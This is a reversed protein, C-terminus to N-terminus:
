LMQVGKGRVNVNGGTAQKRKRLFWILAGCGLLLVVGGSACGVILMTYDGLIGDDGSDKIVKEERYPIIGRTPGLFNVSHGSGQLASLTITKRLGLVSPGKINRIIANNPSDSFIVSPDSTNTDTLRKVYAQIHEVLSEAIGDAQSTDTGNPFVGLDVLLTNNTGENLGVVAVVDKIGFDFEIDSIVKSVFLLTEEPDEADLDVYGSEGKINKFEIDKILVVSASSINAKAFHEPTALSKTVYVSYTSTNKSEATVVIDVKNYGIKNETGFTHPSVAPSLTALASSKTFTAEIDTKIPIVTSYAMKAGSFEPILAGETISLDSLESNTDAALRKLTITYSQQTKRDSATVQFMIEQTSGPDPLWAGDKKKANGINGVLIAEDDDTEATFSVSTEVYKLTCSYKLTDKKFDFTCDSSDLSSKLTKLNHNDSTQRSTNLFYKQLTKTGSSSNVYLNLIKNMGLPIKYSFSHVGGNNVAEYSQSTEGDFVARVKANKDATYIVMEKERELNDYVAPCTYEKIRSDIPRLACDTLTMHVINADDDSLVVFKFNYNTKNIGNHATITFSADNHGPKLGQATNGITALTDNQSIKFSFFSQEDRVVCTYTSSQEDPNFAPQIGNFIGDAHRLHHVAEDLCGSFDWGGPKKVTADDNKPRIIDIVYKQTIDTYEPVVRIEAQRAVKKCDTTGVDGPYKNPDCEFDINEDQIMEGGTEVVLAGLTDNYTYSKLEFGHWFVSASSVKTAVEIDVENFRETLPDVTCTYKCIRVAPNAEDADCVVNPDFAPEMTCGPSIKLTKLNANKNAEHTIDFFYENISGQAPRTADCDDPCNSLTYATCDINASSADASQDCSGEDAVVNTLELKFSSTEKYVLTFDRETTTQYTGLTKLKLNYDSGTIKFSVTKIDDTINTTKFICKYRQKLPRFNISDECGEVEVSTLALLSRTSKPDLRRQNTALEIEYVTTARENEATVAISMVAPTEYSTTTSFTAAADMTLVNTARWATPCGTITYTTILPSFPPSLNAMDCGKIKFSHLKSNDNARKLNIYVHRTTHHDKATVVIEAQNHGVRLNDFGGTLVTADADSAFAELQVHKVEKPLIFDEYVDNVNDITLNKPIGAGLVEYDDPITITIRELRTDDKENRVITVFYDLSDLDNPARVHIQVQVPEEIPWVGPPITITVSADVHVKTLQFDTETLNEIDFGVECKYGKTLSQVFKPHFDHCKPITLDSLAAADAFDQTVSITYTDEARADVKGFCAGDGGDGSLAACGEEPCGSGAVACNHLDLTCDDETGKNAYTAWAAPLADTNAYVHCKAAVFTCGEIQECETSDGLQKTELNCDAGNAVATNECTGSTKDWSFYQCDKSRDCWARCQDARSNVPRQVEMKCIAEHGGDDLWAVRCGATEDFSTKNFDDAATFGFLERTAVECEDASSIKLYAGRCDEEGTDKAKGQHSYIVKLYMSAPTDTISNSACQGASEKYKGTKLHPDELHIKGQLEFVKTQGQEFGQLIVEVPDDRVAESGLYVGDLYLHTLVEKPTALLLISQTTHPITCSYENQTTSTLNCVTKYKLQVKLNDLSGDSPPSKQIFKFRRTIRGAAFDVNNNPLTQAEYAADLEYKKVSLAGRYYCADNAACGTSDGIATCTDTSDENYAFCGEDLYQRFWLFAQRPWIFSEMEQWYDLVHEEKTLDSILKPQGTTLIEGDWTMHTAKCPGDYAAQVISHNNNDKYNDIAAQFRDGPYSAVLDADMEWETVNIYKNDDTGKTYWTNLRPHKFWDQAAVCPTRVPSQVFDFDLEVVDWDVEVTHLPPEVVTGPAYVRQCGKIGASEPIPVQYGSDALSCDCPKVIGGYEYLNADNKAEFDMCEHQFQSVQKHLADDDIPPNITIKHELFDRFASLDENAGVTGIVPHNFKKSLQKAHFGLALFQMDDGLLEKDPTLTVTYEKLCNPFLSSDCDKQEAVVLIKLETNSDCAIAVKNGGSDFTHDQFRYHRSQVKCDGYIDSTDTENKDCIIQLTPDREYRRDITTLADAYQITSASFIFDAPQTCFQEHVKCTYDYRDPEFPTDFECHTVALSLLRADRNPERTIVIQYIESHCGGQDRRTDEEDCSESRTVFTIVTEGPPGLLAIGPTITISTEFYNPTAFIFMEEVEYPVTCAHTAVHADWNRVMDECLGHLVTVNKILADVSRLREIEVQYTEQRKQDSSVVNVSLLNVGTTMYTWDDHGYAHITENTITQAPENKTINPIVTQVDLYVTNRDGTAASTQQEIPAIRCDYQHIHPHFGKQVCMLFETQKLDANSYEFMGNPGVRCFFDRPLLTPHATEEPLSYPIKNLKEVCTTYECLENGTTEDKVALCAEDTTLQDVARCKAEIERGSNTKAVCRGDANSQCLESLDSVVGPKGEDSMTFPKTTDFFFKSRLDTMCTPVLSDECVKQLFETIRTCEGSVCSDEHRHIFVNECEQHVDTGDVLKIGKCVDHLFAEGCQKWDNIVNYGLPCLTFGPYEGKRYVTAPKLGGHETDCAQEEDLRLIEMDKVQAMHIYRFQHLGSYFTRGDIAVSVSILDEKGCKRNGCTIQEAPPTEIIIVNETTGKHFDTVVYDNLKVILCDYLLEEKKASEETCDQLNHFGEGIIYLLSGGLVSEERPRIERISPGDVYYVQAKKGEAKSWPGSPTNAFEPEFMNGEPHDIKHRAPFPFNIRREPVDNNDLVYDQYFTNGDADRLRMYLKSAAAGGIHLRVTGGSLPLVTPFMFSVELPEGVCVADELETKAIAAGLVQCDDSLLRIKALSQFQGAEIAVDNIPTNKGALVACQQKLCFAHQKWTTTSTHCESKAQAWINLAKSLGIGPQKSSEVFKCVSETTNVTGMVLECAARNDFNEVANCNARDALVSVTAKETCLGQGVAKDWGDVTLAYTRSALASNLHIQGNDTTSCLQGKVESANRPGELVKVLVGKDDKVLQDTCKPDWLDMYYDDFKTTAGVTWRLKKNSSTCSKANTTSDIQDRDETVDRSLIELSAAIIYSFSEHLAGAQSFTQLADMHQTFAHTWEHVSTDYEANKCYNVERTIEDWYAICNDAKGRRGVLKSDLNDYSKRNLLLEFLEYVEKATEMVLKDANEWSTMNPEAEVDEDWKADEAGPIYFARKLESHLFLHSGSVTGTHADVFVIHNSKDESKMLYKFALVTESPIGSALHPTFVSLSSGTLTLESAATATKSELYNRAVDEASESSVSPETSISLHPVTVGSVMSIVGDQLVVKLTAGEVPLSHYTQQYTQIVRNAILSSDEEKTLQLEHLPDTLGYKPHAEIFSRIDSFETRETERLVRGLFHEAQEGFLVAHPTGTAPSHHIVVANAVCVLLGLLMM